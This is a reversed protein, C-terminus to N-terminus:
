FLEGSWLKDWIEKWYMKTLENRYYDLESNITSDLIEMGLKEVPAKDDTLILNNPVIRESNSLIDKMKYYIDKSSNKTYNDNFQALCDSSSAYLEKNGNQSASTSCVYVYPFISAITGALYKDISDSKNDQMNMNVIMNGGDNLHDKVSTFFELTSMQFPITIDRYADVMIVDYKKKCNNLYARGDEVFVNISKPLDFYQYALDVIKQDIEVGDFSLNEQPYYDLCQSCFTGTGLGLVLIDLKKDEVGAMLPSAIAYDYYMGTMQPGADKNMNKYSQVGFIVNTSLIRYNDKEEVRLYNYVSEGEYLVQTDWFAVGIRLSSTLGISLSIIFLLATKILNKKSFKIIFYALCIVYLISSFIVFTISTGVFPITVFTPIFTGIISGITNFAEVKGVIQGSESIDKVAYRVINPTVMGLVLLPFVFVVLCSILAAWILYNQTVFMALGLAIGGIVFKGCLPILMIWTAAALIWLFLVDPNKHKDAMKGGIINGLSMAIMITGIVLTWVIQSASFYPALLRSAGLEIAMVSMGCFFGTLYFLCNSKKQTKTENPKENEM